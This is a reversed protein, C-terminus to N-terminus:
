CWSCDALIQPIEEVSALHSRIEFTSYSDLLCLRGSSGALPQNIRPKVLRRYHISATDYAPNSRIVQLTM